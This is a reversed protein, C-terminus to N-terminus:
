YFERMNQHNGVRKLVNESSLILTRAEYQRVLPNHKGCPNERSMNEHKEEAQRVYTQAVMEEKCIERFQSNLLLTTCFKIRIYCM